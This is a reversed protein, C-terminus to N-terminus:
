YSIEFRELTKAYKHDHAICYQVNEVREDFTTKRGKTM